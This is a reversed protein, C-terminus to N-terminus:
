YIKLVKLTLIYIYPLASYKWYSIIVLKPIIAKDNTCLHVTLNGKCPQHYPLLILLDDSYLADTSHVLSETSRVLSCNFSTNLFSLLLFSVCHLQTCNVCQQIPTNHYWWCIHDWSALICQFIKCTYVKEMIYYLYPIYAVPYSGVQICLFVISSYLGLSWIEIVLTPKIMM